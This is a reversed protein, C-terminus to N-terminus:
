LYVGIGFSQESILINTYLIVSNFETTMQFLIFYIAFTNLFRSVQCSRM